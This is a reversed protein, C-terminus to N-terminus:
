TKVLRSASTRHFPTVTCCGHPTRRLTHCPRNSPPSQTTYRCIAVHRGMPTRSSPKSHGPTSSGHQPATSRKLLPVHPPPIQLRDQRFGSLGVYNKFISSVKAPIRSSISLCPETRKRFNSTMTNTDIGPKRDGCPSSSASRPSISYSVFGAEGKRTGGCPKFATAIPMHKVPIPKSHSPTRTFNGRPRCPALADLCSILEMSEAKPQVAVPQGAAAQLM